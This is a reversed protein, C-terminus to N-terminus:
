ADFKIELKTLLNFLAFTLCEVISRIHCLEFQAIAPRTSLLRAELDTKAIKEDLETVRGQARGSVDDLSPAPETKKETGFFRQFM